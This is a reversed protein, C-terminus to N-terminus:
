NRIYKILLTGSTSGSVTHSSTSTMDVEFSSSEDTLKLSGDFSVDASLDWELIFDAGNGVQYQLTWEVQQASSARFDRFLDLGNIEFYANLAGEPPPPPAEQDLESDYGETASGKQGIRLDLQDKADKATLFLTYSEALESFNATIAKDSDMNVMVPNDQSDIDGSWNSFTYGEDASAELEVQEGEKYIGGSPSVSGSGSPNVSTNLEYETTQQTESFNATLNMDSDVTITLPNDQSSTAGSWNDFQWGDNPSAEVIIEAGAEVTTDSPSVSGGDAPDASVSLSYETPEDGTTDSFNATLETNDTILFTYPNEQSQKDGSWGDFVWGESPTAEVTVESSDAYPGSSPTTRVSGGESPSLSLALSHETTDSDADESFNATLDTDESITFTFPNEESEIDTNDSTWGMFSWGDSPTAEVTIDSGEDYTGESPDVYGGESPATDVSLSYETPEDGGNGGGGGEDSDTGSSCGWYALSTALVFFTIKFLRM